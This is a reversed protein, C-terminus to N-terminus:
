RYYKWRRRYCKRRTEGTINGDEEIASEGQKVQLIESSQKKVMNNESKKKDISDTINKEDSEVSIEDHDINSRQALQSIELELSQHHFLSISMIM